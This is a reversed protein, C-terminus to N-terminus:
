LAAAEKVSALRPLAWKMVKGSTSKPLSPVVIIEAPTFARPIHARCFATVRDRLGDSHGPRPVVFACATEGLIEHPMAVIAVEVIEDYELLMDEIQQGSIRKGGLKLFDKRRGSLYLYGNADLRGCDGTYLRGDRFTQSSQEPEHWYGLTVNDGEAVVEGTEGPEVPFGSEDLVSIRVGPIAKGVSGEKSDLMAPPLTTLRATAETQGYMIFIDVQPLAERLDRVFTPALHGGAQQVYRLNPFLMKRLGSKRLLIQYHSPVGAFGTCKTEAMRQLVAEPFMFRRDVVISGGVRLHTHLLSLGFCYHFPLVAMIRDSASLGLAAVISETNAVINRHSVMVGRPRGTSGSTFMLSALDNADTEAHGCLRSEGPELAHCLPLRTLQNRYTESYRDQVFGLVPQTEALIYELEAAPVSAPLPVSVLGARLTSLYAVVWFYTNDALLVVREGKRCGSSELWSSTTEVAQILEGYSYSRDAFLLATDSRGKGSLLHEAANLV